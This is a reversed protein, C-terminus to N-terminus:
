TTLKHSNKEKLERIELNVLICKVEKILLIHYINKLFSTSILINLDDVFGFIQSDLKAGGPDATGGPICLCVCYKQHAGSLLFLCPPYSGPARCLIGM